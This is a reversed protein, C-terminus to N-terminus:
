LRVFRLSHANSLQEISLSEVPAENFLAPKWAGFVQWRRAASATRTLALSALGPASARAM